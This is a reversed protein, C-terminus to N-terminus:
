LIENIKHCSGSIMWQGINKVYLIVFRHLSCKKSVRSHCPCRDGVVLRDVKDLAYAGNFLGLVFTIILRNLHYRM